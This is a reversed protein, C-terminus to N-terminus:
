EPQPLKWDNMKYFEIVVQESNNKLLSELIPKKLLAKSLLDELNSVGRERLKIPKKNLPKLQKLDEKFVKLRREIEPIFDIEHQIFEKTIKIEEQKFKLEFLSQEHDSFQRYGFIKLSFVKDESAEDSFYNQCSWDKVEYGESNLAKEGELIFEKAEQFSIPSGTEISLIKESVQRKIKWISM